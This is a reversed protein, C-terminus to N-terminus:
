IPIKTRQVLADNSVHATAIAIKKGTKIEQLMVSCLQNHHQMYGSNTTPEHFALTLVLDKM